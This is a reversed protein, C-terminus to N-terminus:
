KKQNSRTEADAKYARIIRGVLQHRQVDSDDFQIFDIGETGKLIRIAENLGSTASGPLDIQSPDGTIIMKSDEGLRTLFMKMQESTTNQAEDLIVVARSLTRGRMFALPAIEITNPKAQGQPSIKDKNGTVHAISPDGMQETIQPVNDPAMDRIADFLPQLYPAVKDKMDGPLFGLREGAEVAPRTLIIRDVHGKELQELACAVALYTKGTGADGLGFVMDNNRIATIYKQQNATRPKVIKRKLKIDSDANFGSKQSKVHRLVHHADINAGKLEAENALKLLLDYAQNVSQESDGFILFEPAHEHIDVGCKEQIIDLYEHHPGTIVQAIANNNVILKKEFVEKVM